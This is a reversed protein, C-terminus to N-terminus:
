RLAAGRGEFAQLGLVLAAEATERDPGQATELRARLTRVFAGRTTSEEAIEDLNYGPRTGNVIDLYAFREACANYLAATDLDVEPQLRGELVVRAIAGEEGLSAIAARVEDSSLMPTVDVRHTLYRVRGFPLLQPRVGDGGIDLRLLCHEGEESFDLAEPSGPYAFAAQAHIRPSHYHGLLAFDAGTAAIDQPQFPAHALKGEPVAHADSGHFLLVHRGENPVRFGALLNDRLDPANHAAGWLTLGPALAVPRLRPESFIHVNAPWEIRRYLSDPLYPDHNGPAIFVPIAGLRECQARLFHGTDLTSREHEFLDGGITVAHAPLELALGTLRRFADRLEQRRNAAIAPTMGAGSYARDLHVDATHLITYNM